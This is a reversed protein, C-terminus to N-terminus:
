VDFNEIEYIDGNGSYDFKFKGVENLLEQIEFNESSSGSTYENISINQLYKSVLLYREISSQILEIEGPVSSYNEPKVLHNHRLTRTIRDTCHGHAYANRWSSLKRIAEFPKEGKVSKNTLISALLTLKEPPSLKEIVEGIDKDLNYVIHMNLRDELHVSIMFIALECKLKIKHEIEWLPSAIEGFEEEIDDEEPNRVYFDDLEINVKEHIVILDELYLILDKIAEIVQFIAGSSRWYPPPMKLPRNPINGTTNM